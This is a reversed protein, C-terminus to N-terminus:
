SSAEEKTDQAPEPKHETMSVVARGITQMATVIAGDATYGYGDVWPGNNTAAGNIGYGTWKIHAPLWVVARWARSADREDTKTVEITPKM